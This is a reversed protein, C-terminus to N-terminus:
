LSRNIEGSIQGNVFAMYIIESFTRHIIVFRNKARILKQNIIHSISNISFVLRNIKNSTNFQASHGPLVVEPLISTNFLKKVRGAAAM